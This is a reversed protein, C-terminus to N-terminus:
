HDYPFRVFEDSEISTFCDTELFYIFTKFCGFYRARIGTVDFFVHKYETGMVICKKFILVNSYM